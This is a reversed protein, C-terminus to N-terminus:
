SVQGARQTWQPRALKPRGEIEKAKQIKLAKEFTDRQGTVTVLEEELNIIREALQKREGNYTVNRWRDFLALMGQHKNQEQIQHQFSTASSESQQEIHKIYTLYTSRM